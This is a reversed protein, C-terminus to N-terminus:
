GPQHLLVEAIEQVRRRTIGERQEVALPHATPELEILPRDSPPQTRVNTKLNITSEPYVPLRTSLWGFYPPESAREPDEWRELMRGYNDHSLSVWVSWSFTRDEDRLPLVVNGRVFLGQGYIMCIDDELMNRPDAALEDSWYDPAAVGYSM